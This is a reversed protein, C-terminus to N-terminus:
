SETSREVQSRRSTAKLAFLGATLLGVALALLLGTNSGTRPLTNGGTTPPVTAPTVPVTPPAVTTTTAQTTTTSPPALGGLAVFTANNGTCTFTATVILGISSSLDLTSTIVMSKESFNVQQSSSVPTWTTDPLNFSSTLPQAVGGSVHVTVTASISYTHTQQTTSSGAIVFKLTSPIQMGDTIIGADVGVQLLSAPVSITGKTNSLTIPNGEHPQGFADSSVSVGIKTAGPPQIPPDLKSQCNNQSSVSGSVSKQPPLTTTTAGGTTTTVQASAATPGIVVLAVLATAGLASLRKAKNRV